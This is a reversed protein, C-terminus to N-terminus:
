PKMFGIVTLEEGLPIWPERRQWADVAEQVQIDARHRGYDHFAIVGGNIIKPAWLAIDQDVFDRTHNGDVFVFSVPPPVLEAAAASDLDILRASVGALELNHLTHEKLNTPDPYSWNDVGIAEGRGERALAWAILSSGVYVGIEVGTGDPASQAMRCLHALGERHVLWKAKMARGVIEDIEM